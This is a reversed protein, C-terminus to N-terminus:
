DLKFYHKLHFENDISDAIIFRVFRRINYFEIIYDIEDRCDFPHVFVSKQFEYFELWKLHERLIERKNKIIEPIDFLVIRWQGDWKQPRKIQMEDLKYTLAKKKGKQSLVITFSGDKQFKTSILKSEYLSKIARQLARNEIERWERGIQKIIRFHQRPSRSLGLVLGGFLLLLTKQQIKGLGKPM